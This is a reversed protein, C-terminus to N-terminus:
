RPLVRPPPPAPVCPAGLLAGFLTGISLLSVILGERGISFACSGDPHCEAFRHIFDPM